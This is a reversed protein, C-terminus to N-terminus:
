GNEISYRFTIFCPGKIEVPSIRLYAYVLPYDEHLPVEFAGNTIEDISTKLKSIDDVGSDADFLHCGAATFGFLMVLTILKLAPIRYM